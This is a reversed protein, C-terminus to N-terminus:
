LQPGLSGVFSEVHDLVLPSYAGATRTDIDSGWVWAPGRRRGKMVNKVDVEFM